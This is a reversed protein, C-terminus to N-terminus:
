FEWNMELRLTYQSYGIYAETSNFELNLTLHDMPYFQLKPGITFFAEDREPVNNISNQEIFHHYSLNGFITLYKSFDRGLSGSMIFATTDVSRQARYEDNVYTFSATTAYAWKGMKDSIGLFATGGYSDVDLDANLGRTLRHESDVYNFSLGTNLLNFFRKASYLAIGNSNLHENTNQSNSADRYVRQYILGAILGDYIDVDFGIDGMAEEGGFGGQTHDDLRSYSLGSTFIPNKFQFGKTQTGNGLYTVSSDLVRGVLSFAPNHIAETAHSIQTEQTALPELDQLDPEPPPVTAWTTLTPGTLLGLVLIFPSFSKLFKM